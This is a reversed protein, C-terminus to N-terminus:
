DPVAPASARRAPTRGYGLISGSAAHRLLQGLRDSRRHTRSRTPCGRGRRSPARRRV